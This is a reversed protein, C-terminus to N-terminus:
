RLSSALLRASPRIVTNRVLRRLAPRDEIFRAIPPSVHYYTRVMERGISSKMLVTDRWDRLVKVEPADPDGAAATAIFCRKDKGLPSSNNIGEELATVKSMIEQPLDENKLRECVARAEGMDGKALRLAALRLFNAFDPHLTVAEQMAVIADLLYEQQDMGGVVYSDTIAPGFCEAALVNADVEVTWTTVLADLVDSEMAHPGQAGSPGGTVGDDLDLDFLLNRAKDALNVTEEIAQQIFAHDPKVKAGKLRGATASAQDLLRGVEAMRGGRDEDPGEGAAKMSAVIGPRNDRVYKGVLEAIAEFTTDRWAPAVDQAWEVASAATDVDDPYGEFEGVEEEAQAEKLRKEFASYFEDDMLDRIATLHDRVLARAVRQDRSNELMSVVIQELTLAM